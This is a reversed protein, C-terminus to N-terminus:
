RCQKICIHKASHMCERVEEGEPKPGFCKSTVSTAVQDFTWNLEQAVSALGTLFERFGLRRSRLPKARAFIIDVACQCLLGAHPAPSIADILWCYHATSAQQAKGNRMIHRGDICCLASPVHHEVDHEVRSLCLLSYSEM